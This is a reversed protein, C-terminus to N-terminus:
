RRRTILLGVAALLLWGAGASGGYRCGGGSQPKKMGEPDPPLSCSTAEAFLGVDDIVAEVVNDNNGGDEAVFRFRLSGAALAEPPLKDGLKAVRRQWGIAMGGLRDVETWTKGDASALVTLTDGLGPILVEKDFDAAVFYVQYSLHAGPALPFAPSEVTTRGKRVDNDSADNGAAIGTVFAKSGSYAAGPQMVFEFAATREPSGLEWRGAIATDNGDPNVKWGSGSELDDVTRPDLGVVVRATARSPGPREPKDLTAFDIALPQGCPTGAPIHGEFTVTTTEGPPLNGGDLTDKSFTAVGRGLAQVKLPGRESGGNTVPVAVTFADGPALTGQWKPVGFTFAPGRCPHLLNTCVKGRGGGATNYFDTWLRRTQDIRFSEGIVQDATLGPSTLLVVGMRLDLAAPDSAPERKGMARVIDNINVDVRKARYRSGRALVLSTVPKDQDDRFDDLIYFTPVESPQRLGMGYQDLTGYRRGRELPSYTGDTNAQWLYGDMISGDAQVGRAWHAKQRGLLADSPAAEGDRHFRFYVLWRHAAEQAWVAYLGNDPDDAADRGYALVRKMNLVTQLRGSPSGYTASADFPGLGLGKIDNKVPMQYALSDLSVVDTFTLFVAIQDFNDGFAQIFRRSVAALNDGTIGHRTGRASTTLEDGELVAVNGVIQFGAGLGVPEARQAVPRTFLAEDRAARAFATDISVHDQHDMWVDVAHAPPPRAPPPGPEDPLAIAAVWAPVAVALIRLTRM